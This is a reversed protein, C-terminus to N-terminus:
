EYGYSKLVDDLEDRIFDDVGLWLFLNSAGPKQWNKNPGEHVHVAYESVPTGTKQNMGEVGFGIEGAAQGSSTSVVKIYESNILTATDVPVYPKTNRSIGWMIEQIMEQPAYQLGRLADRLDQEAAEFGTDKYEYVKRAM